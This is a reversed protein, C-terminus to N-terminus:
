TVERYDVAIQLTDSQGLKQYWNEGGFSEAESMTCDGFDHTHLKSRWQEDERGTTGDLILVYYELTVDGPVKLKLDGHFPGEQILENRKHNTMKENGEEKPTHTVLLRSDKIDAITAAPSVHSRGSASRLKTKIHSFGCVIRQWEVGVPSKEIRIGEKGKEAVREAGGALPFWTGQFDKKEVDVAKALQPDPDVAIQEVQKEVQPVPMPPLEDPWPELEGSQLKKYKEALKKHESRLVSLESNTKKKFDDLGKVQDELTRNKDWLFQVWQALQKAYHEMWRANKLVVKSDEQAQLLLAARTQVETAVPSKGRTIQAQAVTAEIEGEVLEFPPVQEGTARAVVGEPDDIIKYVVKNNAADEPPGETRMAPTFNCAM